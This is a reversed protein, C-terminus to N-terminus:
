EVFPDYFEAKAPALAVRLPKLAVQGAIGLSFATPVVLSYDSAAPPLKEFELEVLRHAGPPITLAGLPVRRVGQEDGAFKQAQGLPAYRAGKGDRLRIADLEVEVPDESHNVVWVSAAGATGDLRADIALALQDTAHEGHLAMPHACGGLIVTTLFLARAQM